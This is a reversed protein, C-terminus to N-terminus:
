LCTFQGSFCTTTGTWIVSAQLTFPPCGTAQAAEYIKQGEDSFTNFYIIPAGLEYSSFASVTKCDITFTHM